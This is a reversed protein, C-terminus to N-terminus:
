SIGPLADHFQGFRVCESQQAFAVNGHDDRLVGFAYDDAAM